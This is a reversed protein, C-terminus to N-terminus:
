HSVTPTPGAKRANVFSRADLPLKIKFLTGTEDSKVDVKGGHAEVVGKVIALGIGWGKKGSEEASSSRVFENFLASTESAKLPIGFNHVGLIFHRDSNSLSVTVPATPSGYKIANTCLNEIVRRIGNPSVYATLSDVSDLIFREGYITELEDLTSQTLTVMNTEFLEPIFKKGAQFSNADLLDEIMKNVRNLSATVKTALSTIKADETKRVILQASISATTLPTRLDHSLASIFKDRMIQEEHLSDAVQTQELALMKYEHESKKFAELIKKQETHDSISIFITCTKGDKDLGPTLTCHLYRPTGNMFETHKEFVVKKGELAQTFYPSLDAFSKKGLVEETHKGVIEEISLGYWEQYTKNVFLFRLNTDVQGILIPQTDAIIQLKRHSAKAEEEIKKRQSIDIITCVSQNPEDYTGPLPSSFIEGWFESGDKRRFRKQDGPDEARSFDSFKKDIIEDPNFKLMECFTKNVRLIKGDKSNVVAKGTGALEFLVMLEKQALYLDTVDTGIAVAHTIKGEPDSVASADLRIYGSASDPRRIKIIENQCPQALKIARALINNSKEFAQNFLGKKGLSNSLMIEGNTADAIWVASPMQELVSQLMSREQQLNNLQAKAYESGAMRMGFNIAEYIIDREQPSIPTETELQKFIVRRLISYEYLADEISYASANARESGHKHAFTVMDIKVSHLGDKLALALEDLFAPISDILSTESEKRAATLFQRVENKWQELIAPKNKQLLLSLKKSM